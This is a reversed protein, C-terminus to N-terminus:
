ETLKEKHRKTLIVIGATTFPKNGATPRILRLFHLWKARTNKQKSREKDSQKCIYAFYTPKLYM